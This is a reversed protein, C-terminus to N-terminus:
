FHGYACIGSKGNLYSVECMGLSGLVEHPGIKQLRKFCSSMNVLWISETLVTNVNRAM